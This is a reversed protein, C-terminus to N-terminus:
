SVREGRMTDGSIYQMQLPIITNVEESKGVAHIRIYNETLGSLLEKECSEILVKRVSGVNQKYFKNKKERSLSQLIQSRELIIEPKVKPSINVADTHDRESFSFVHLYSVDISDLFNYTQQFNKDSEGPFGVIVDVGIGADPLVSKVTYIRNAFLDTQYRRKMAKLITNSGSQLPIHFHPLFKEAEAM